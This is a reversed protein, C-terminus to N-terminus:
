NSREKLFKLGEIKMTQKLGVELETFFNPNNLWKELYLSTAYKRPQGNPYSTDFEINDKIKKAVEAITYEEKPACIMKNTAPPTIICKLIIRAFDPTYLFQRKASGDGFVKLPGEKVAKAILQPIVHGGEGFNDHPGYLNTPILTFWNYQNTRRVKDIQLQMLRKSMAYEANSHHPEGEFMDEETFCSKKTPFVCTSSIAIVNKVECELAAKLVNNNILINRLGITMKDNLHKYLGGVDAALHVVHTPQINQIMKLANEYVLLDYDKSGVYHCKKNHYKNYPDTTLDQLNKGVMGTGGTVLIKTEM